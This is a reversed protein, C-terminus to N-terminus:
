ALQINDGELNDGDPMLGGFTEVPQLGRVIVALGIERVSEGDLSGFRCGIIQM